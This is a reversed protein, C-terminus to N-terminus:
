RATNRSRRCAYDRCEGRPQLWPPACRQTQKRRRVVAFAPWPLRTSLRGTAHPPAGRQSKLLTILASFDDGGLGTAEARQLQVIVNDLFPLAAPALTAAALRMDKHMHKVSFQPSFEAAHLKPEKLKALPSYDVTKELVKFYLDDSM